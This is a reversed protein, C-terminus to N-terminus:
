LIGHEKFFALVSSNFVEPQELPILHGAKFIAERKANPIGAEIVGSHAHVDPERWIIQASM